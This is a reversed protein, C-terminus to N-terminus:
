LTIRFPQWQNASWQQSRYATEVTIGRTNCSIFWSSWISWWNCRASPDHSIREMSLPLVLQVNRLNPFTEASAFSALNKRLCETHRAPKATFWWSLDTDSNGEIVLRQVKSLIVNKFLLAFNRLTVEHFNIALTLLNQCMPLLPLTIAVDSVSLYQLHRGGKSIMSARDCTDSIILTDLSPLELHDLVRGFQFHSVFTHLNPLHCAWPDHDESARRSPLLWVMELSQSLATTIVKLSPLDTKLEVRKVSSEALASIVSLNDLIPPDESCFATSFSILNPCSKIIYALALSHEQTWTHAGDLAIELRTTWRAPRCSYKDWATSAHRAFADAVRLAQLGSELLIYEFMHRMMLANWTPCVSSLALKTSMVAKFRTQACIGYQDRTFAIFGDVDTHSFAGPLQVAYRFIKQWIEPPLEPLTRNPPDVALAISGM